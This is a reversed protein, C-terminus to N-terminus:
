IGSWPLTATLLQQYRAKVAPSAKSYPGALASKAADVAAQDGLGARQEAVAILWADVLARFASVARDDDTPGPPPVVVVAGPDPIETGVAFAKKTTDVGNLEVKRAATLTRLDAQTKPFYRNDGAETPKVNPGSFVVCVGGKGDNPCDAITATTYQAWVPAACLILSLVLLTRKM